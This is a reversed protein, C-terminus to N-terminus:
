GCCLLLFSPNRICCGPPSPTVHHAIKAVHPTVVLWWLWFFQHTSSLTALSQDLKQQNRAMQVWVLLSRYYWFMFKHQKGLEQSSFCNQNWQRISQSDSQSKLSRASLMTLISIYSSSHLQIQNHLLHQLDIKNSESFPAVSIYWGSGEGKYIIGKKM